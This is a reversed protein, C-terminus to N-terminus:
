GKGIREMREVILNQSVGTSLAKELCTIGEKKNGSELAIDTFVLYARGCNGDIRLASDAMRKAMLFDKQDFFRLAIEVCIEALDVETRIERESEMGFLLLLSEFSSQMSKIDNVEISTQILGSLVDMDNPDEIVSRLYLNHADNFRGVFYYGRALCLWLSRDYDDTHEAAKELYFIAGPVDGSYLLAMGLARIAPMYHPNVDLSARFANVADDGRGAKQLAMGYHYPLREGLDSPIPFIEIEIGLNNAGELASIAEDIKEMKFCLYGLSYYLLGSQPYKQVALSLEQLAKGPTKLRAYCEAAVIFSYKHWSENVHHQRAMIIYELCKAYDCLSYCSMAIRFLHSAGWNEQDPESLLIKLNRWAKEEVAKNDHYGAHEIVIDANEVRIGCREMCPLIQEHIKGEFRIDHINPFIRPQLTSTNIGKDVRNVIRLLYGVDKEPCLHQKFELIKKRNEDDIRDDADLWLLYDSTALEISRNRAASFDDDWAFFHVNAGYSQAIGVTRDESGTDVVVIEDVAGELDSLINGLRDEEDKVIMVAGLTPRQPEKM